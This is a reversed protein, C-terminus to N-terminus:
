KGSIVEQTKYNICLYTRDRLYIDRSAGIRIVKVLNLDPDVVLANALDMSREGKERIMDSYYESQAMHASDMVIQLQKPYETDRCVYDIHTHGCLWCVFKGGENMFDDVAKMYNKMYKYSPYGNELKLSGNMESWNCKLIDIKGCTAPFHDAIIVNLDKEKADKLTLALWKEQEEPNDKLMCDLGILRVKKEPYDKYYYNKGEQYNVGWNKINPAMYRDFAEKETIQVSWDWNESSKLTDHNGLVFMINKAMPEKAWFSFDSESSGEIIDGTCIADDFYEGYFNYFNLLRNLESAGGHLDSFWFLSFIKTGKEYAPKLALRIDNRFGPNLEAASKIAQEMLAENTLKINVPAYIGGANAQDYVKVKIINDGVKLFPRINAYFSTLWLAEPLIGTSKVTHEIVLKGNVYVTAEEDVAKFMIYINKYKLEEKTFNEVRSYWATGDYNGIVTEWNTNVPMNLWDKTDYSNNIYGLKEGRNDPDTIFKWDSKVARNSDASLCLAMAFIVMCL